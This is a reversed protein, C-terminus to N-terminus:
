CLKSHQMNVWIYHITSYCVNLFGPPAYQIKEETKYFLCLLSFVITLMYFRIVLKFYTFLTYVLQVYSSITDSVLFLSGSQSISCTQPQPKSFFTNKSHLFFWEKSVPRLIKEKWKGLDLDFSYRAKYIETWYFADITYCLTQPKNYYLNKKKNICKSCPQMKKNANIETLQMFM